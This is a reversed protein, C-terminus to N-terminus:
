TKSKSKIKIRLNIKCIKLDTKSAQLIMKNQLSQFANVFISQTIVIGASIKNVTIAIILNLQMKQWRTQQIM